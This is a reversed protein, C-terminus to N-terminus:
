SKVTSLFLRSLAEAESVVAPKAAPIGNHPTPPSPPLDVAAPARSIAPGAAPPGSPAVLKVETMTPAFPDPAAAGAAAIRKQPSLDGLFGEVVTYGIDGFIVSDLYHEAGLETLQDKTKVKGLLKSPDGGSDDILKTFRVAPTLKVTRNESLLTLTTDDLRVKGQDAWQELM